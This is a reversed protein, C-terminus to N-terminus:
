LNLQRAQGQEGRGAAQRDLDEVNGGALGATGGEEAVQAAALGVGIERATPMGDDRRRPATAVDEGHTRWTRAVDNGRPQRATAVNM